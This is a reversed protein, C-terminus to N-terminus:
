RLREMLASTISAQFLQEGYDNFRDLVEKASEVDLPRGGERFIDFDLLYDFLSADNEAPLVLHRLGCYEENGLDLQLVQQAGRVAPGLGPHLIPGLFHESIFPAWGAPSSIGQGRIRDIFRVALRQEFAPNVVRAVIDLVDSMRSSFHEWTTYATTELGVSDPFLAVAWGTSDKSSFRWGESPKTNAVPQGTPSISVTVRQGGVLNQVAPYEGAAGGLAEHFDRATQSDSVSSHEEFRLQAIVQVLPSTTLPTHDPPPLELPM